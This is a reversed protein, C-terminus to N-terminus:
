FQFRYHFLALDTFFFVAGFKQGTSAPEVFSFVGVAVEVLRCDKAVDFRSHADCLLFNKAGHHGYDRSIGQFFSNLNDVVGGIAKRSGDIRLVDVPSEDCHPVDIGAKEVDVSGGDARFHMEGKAAGLLGAVPVPFGALRSQVDKRFPFHEVNVKRPFQLFGLNVHVLIQYIFLMLRMGLKPCCSYSWCGKRYEQLSIRMAPYRTEWSQNAEQM